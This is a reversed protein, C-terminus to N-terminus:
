RGLTAFEGGFICDLEIGHVPKNRWLDVREYLGPEYM